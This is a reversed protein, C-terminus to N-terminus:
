DNPLQEGVKLPTHIRDALADSKFATDGILFFGEPTEHM